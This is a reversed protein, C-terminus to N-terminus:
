GAVMALFARHIRLDETLEPHFAMGLLNKERIVVPEGGHEALVEVQKGVGTIRPARIFVAPFPEPSGDLKELSVPATFSDIQRGYGNRVVTCDLLGFPAVGFDTKKEGELRQALMILGACTGMVPNEAAFEALPQRLGVRDALRTLTTSEGGPIVLSSVHALEAPRRVDSTAVGLARFAQRHKDFDGQLTLLGVPKTM